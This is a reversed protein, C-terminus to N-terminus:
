SSCCFASAVVIEKCFAKLSEESPRASAILKRFATSFWDTTARSSIVVAIGFTAGTILARPPSTFSRANKMAAIFSLPTAADSPALARFDLRPRNTFGVFAAESKKSVSPM